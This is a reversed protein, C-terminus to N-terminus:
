ACNRRVYESLIELFKDEINENRLIHTQLGNEYVVASHEGIGPLSLGINAHKSEGPGNVICGMVAIKLAKVKPYEIGWVPLADDVYNQVRKVLGQFRENNTRGCGPCSIIKPKFSRLGLSQLIEKCLEVEEVRRSNPDPTLSVRITDGVGNALLAALAAVTAVKAYSGGGAETLGLHLPYKTRVSLENYVAIVDPVDSFKASLIIKDPPLGIREAQAASIVASELGAEQIVKGDYRNEVGIQEVFRSLAEQELSGSNVGIRIPKDYRIANEVIQEFNKDRKGGFGVNGPNIRYKALSKACEPARSLLTHGNYHFCGVIPTFYGRIGLDEVIKPVAHAAEITNVAVRVLESGAEVLEIIQEVTAGVNATSTNTMSQIVVPNQGGIKVGGVDVVYTDHRKRM